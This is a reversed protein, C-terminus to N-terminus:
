NSMIYLFTSTYVDVKKIKMNIGFPLAEPIIIVFFYLFLFFVHIGYM